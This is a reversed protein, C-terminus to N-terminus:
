LTFSCPDPSIASVLFTLMLLAELSVQKLHATMTTRTILNADQLKQPLDASNLKGALSLSLSRDLDNTMAQLEQKTEEFAGTFRTVMSQLIVVM